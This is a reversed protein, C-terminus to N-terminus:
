NNTKTKIKLKSRRVQINSRWSEENYVKLKSNIRRYKFKCQGADEAISM